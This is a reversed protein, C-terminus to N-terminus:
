AAATVPLRCQWWLGQTLLQRAEASDRITYTQM